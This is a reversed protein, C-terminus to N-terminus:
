LMISFYSTFIYVSAHLSIEKFHPYNLWYTYYINIFTQQYTVERIVLCFTQYTLSYFFLNEYNESCM